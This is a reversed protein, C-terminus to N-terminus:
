KEAVWGESKRANLKTFSWVHPIHSEPLQHVEGQDQALPGDHKKNKAGHLHVHHGLWHSVLGGQGPAEWLCRLYRDPARLGYCLGIACCRVSIPLLSLTSSHEYLSSLSAWIYKVSVSRPKSLVLTHFCFLFEEVKTKQGLDQPLSIAQASSPTQQCAKNLVQSWAKSSM